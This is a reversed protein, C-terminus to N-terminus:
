DVFNPEPSLASFHGSAGHGPSASLIYDLFQVKWVQSSCLIAAHTELQQLIFPSLFEYRSVDVRFGTALLAHDVLRESGDDLELRLESSTPVARVVSRGLTIPVETLRPELWGSGAPRISRYAIKNQFHRPLQRFVYPMAVLRSLGAPGVDRNSYLM